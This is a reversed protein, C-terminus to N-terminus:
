CEVGDKLLSPFNPPQAKTIRIWQPDYARWVWLYNWGSIKSEKWDPEIDRAMAKALATPSEFREPGFAFLGNVISGYREEKKFEMMIATGNPLEVNRDHSVWGRRKGEAMRIGRKREPLKLEGATLMEYMKLIPGPPTVAGSEYRNITRWSKFGFLRALQGQTLGAKKRIALIRKPTM